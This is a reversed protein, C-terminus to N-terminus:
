RASDELTAGASTTPPLEDSYYGAAVAARVHELSQREEITFPYAGGDAAEDVAPLWALVDTDTSEGSGDWDTYFRAVVAAKYVALRALQQNTFTSDTREILEM